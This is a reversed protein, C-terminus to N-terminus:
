IRRRKLLLRFIGWSFRMTSPPPAHDAPTFFFDRLHHLRSYINSKPIVLILNWMSLMGREVKRAALMEPGKSSKEHTFSFLLNTNNRIRIRFNWAKRLRSRPRNEWHNTASKSAPYDQWFQVSLGQPKDLLAPGTQAVACCLDLEKRGSRCYNERGCWKRVELETQCWTVASSVSVVKCSFVLGWLISKLLPDHPVSVKVETGSGFRILTEGM